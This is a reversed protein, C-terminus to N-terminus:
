GDLRLTFFRSFPDDTYAGFPGCEEFGHRRYFGHAADFAPGSGTELSLREYGRVRATRIITELLTAGIGKRLYAQRTRM